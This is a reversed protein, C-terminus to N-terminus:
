PCSHLQSIVHTGLTVGKLAYYKGKQVNSMFIDLYDDRDSRNHGHYFGLAHGLEHIITGKSHCGLGLSAPQQDGTM